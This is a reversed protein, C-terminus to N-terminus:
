FNGSAGGGGVTGGGGIGSSGFIGKLYDVFQQWISQALLSACETKNSLCYNGIILIIIGLIVVWTIPNALISVVIGAVWVWVRKAAQKAVKKAAQKAADKAMLKAGQKLQGLRARRRSATDAEYAAQIQNQDM